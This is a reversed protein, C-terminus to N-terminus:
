VRWPRVSVVRSVDLWRGRELRRRRLGQWCPDIRQGRISKPVPWSRCEVRKWGSAIMSAFPQKVTLAKM